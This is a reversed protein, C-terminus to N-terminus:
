QRATSLSAAAAAAEQHQKFMLEYHEFYEPFAARLRQKCSSDAAYYCNALSRVFSGGMVEMMHLPGDYIRSM